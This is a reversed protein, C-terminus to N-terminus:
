ATAGSVTVGVLTITAGAANVVLSGGVVSQTVQGPAYGRFALTDRGVAFDGIVTSGLTQGATADFTAAGAARSGDGSVYADGAGLELRLVGSGRYLALGGAQGAVTTAGAGLTVAASGVGAFVTDAGDNGFYTEDGAGLVVLASGAGGFVTDAAAGFVTARGAGEYIQDGGGGVLTTNGTSAVLLNAAAGYIVSAGAGGLVTSNAGGGAVSGGGAALAVLNGGASGGVLVDNLTGGLLFDGGGAGGFASTTGTDGFVVLGSAAGNVTLNGTGGVVTDGAVASAVTDAGGNAVILTATGSPHAIAYDDAQAAVLAVFGSPVTYSGAQAFVDQLMAVNSFGARPAEFDPNGTYGYVTVNVQAAPQYTAIVNALASVDAATLSVSLSAAVDGSASANGGTGYQTLAIGLDHAYLILSHYEVLQAYMQAGVASTEYTVSPAFLDGGSGLALRPAASGLYDPTGYRAPASYFSTAYYSEYNVPTTAYNGVPDGTEVYSTLAASGSPTINAPNLGTSAFVTGAYDQTM